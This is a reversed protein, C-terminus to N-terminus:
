KGGRLGALPDASKAPEPAPAPAATVVRVHRRDIDAPGLAYGGRPGDSADVALGMFYRAPNYPNRSIMIKTVTATVAPDSETWGDYEIVAGVGLWPWLEMAEAETWERKVM